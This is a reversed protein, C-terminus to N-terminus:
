IQRFGLAMKYRRKVFQREVVQILYKNCVIAILGILGLVYISYEPVGFYKFLL